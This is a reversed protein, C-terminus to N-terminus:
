HCAHCARSVVSRGEADLRGSTASSHCDTCCALQGLDIAALQPHAAESATNAARRGSSARGERFCQTPLALSALWHRDARQIHAQGPSDDHGDADAGRGRDAASSRVSPADYGPASMALRQAPPAAPIRAPTTLQDFLGRSGTAAAVGLLVAAAYRLLNTRLGQGRWLASPMDRSKRQLSERTRPWQIDDPSYLCAAGRYGPLGLGDDANMAEQFLEVAPRLAVALRRCETCCALHAEVHDDDQAGSPFPGRTLVDFVQDCNMM